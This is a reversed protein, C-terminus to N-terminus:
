TEVGADLGMDAFEAEAQARASELIASVEDGHDGSSAVNSEILYQAGKYAGYGVTALGIGALISKIISM